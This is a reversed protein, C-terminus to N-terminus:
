LSTASTTRALSPAPSVRVTARRCGSATILPQGPNRSPRGRPGPFIPGNLSPRWGRQSRGGPGTAPREGLFALFAQSGRPGHRPVTPRRVASAFRRRGDKGSALEFSVMEGPELLRMGSGEIDSYHVFFNRNMAECEIFGWGHEFRSVVGTYRPGAAVDVSEPGGNGSQEAVQVGLHTCLARLMSEIRDLQTAM